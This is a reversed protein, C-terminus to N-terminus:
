YSTDVHLGVAIEFATAACNIDAHNMDVCQQKLYLMDSSLARTMVTVCEM